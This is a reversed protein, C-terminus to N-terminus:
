GLAIELKTVSAPPFAYVLASAGVAVDRPASPKVTDPHAFSNVDHVGHAALTTARVSRVSRVAAGGRVVVETERPETMSSNTVTLTVVNGRVSASGNLGWLTSRTGDKETWAVPPASVETRVSQAGQHAAYMAFVHYVPTVVFQDDHALFV